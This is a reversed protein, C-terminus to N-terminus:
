SCDQRVFTCLLSWRNGDGTRLEGGGGWGGGRFRRESVGETMTKTETFAMSLVRGENNDVYCGMYNEATPLQTYSVDLLLLSAPLNM